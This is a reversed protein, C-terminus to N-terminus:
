REGSGTDPDVIDMYPAAEQFCLSEWLRAFDEM